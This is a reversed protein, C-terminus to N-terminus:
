NKHKNINLKSVDYNYIVTTTIKSVVEEITFSDNNLLIADKVQKLPSNKRGMDRKDRVLIDNYVQNFDIVEGAKILDNYRRAARVQPSATLFFKFTAHPLVKSAIDRGEMIVHHKKAIDRQLGLIKKRVSKYASAISSLSSITSNYIKDNVIENNLITKQEGDKFEVDVKINKLNKSVLKEDNADLNNEHFYLAIARYLAGTNLHLINLEKAVLAATSTKGVGSPGDIAISLM